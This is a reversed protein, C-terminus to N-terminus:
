MKTKGKYTSKIDGRYADVIVYNDGEVLDLRLEYTKSNINDVTKEEGNFNYVIKTINTEDEVNIVIQNDEKLVKIAPGKVGKIEKEIVEENGARDYAKVKLKNNGEMVDISEAISKEDESLGSIITEEGDNWSYSVYSMKLNDTASIRIKGDMGELKVIPKTKDNKVATEWDVEQNMNNVDYTIIIPEYKILSGQNDLVEVILENTGNLTPVEVTANKSGNVGQKTVNGSIGENMINWYYRIERMGTKSEVKLITKENAREVMIEPPIVDIKVSKKKLYNNVGEAVLVLGFLIIFVCFFRIVKKIQKKSDEATRFTLIQNM